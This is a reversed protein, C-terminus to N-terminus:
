YGTPLYEPCPRDRTVCERWTDGTIYDPLWSAKLRNGPYANYQLMTAPNRTFTSNDGLYGNAQYLPKLVVPGALPAAYAPMRLQLAREFFPFILNNATGQEHGSGWDEALSWLAGGSRGNNLIKSMQDYVLKEDFQGYFFMGPVARAQPTTNQLTAYGSKNCAFAMVKSPRWLTFSYTFAGGNSFGMMLLPVNVLESHGSQSAFTAISNLLARGSGKEAFIYRTDTSSFKTGLAAFGWNDAIKKTKRQTAFNRGDGGYGPSFVVIGRVVQQNAPIYIRTQINVGNFTSSNNGIWESLTAAQGAIAKTSTPSDQALSPTAPSAALACVFVLLRATRRSNLKTKRQIM